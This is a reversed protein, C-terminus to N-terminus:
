NKFARDELRGPVLNSIGTVPSTGGNIAYRSNIKAQPSWRSILPVIPFNAISGHCAFM